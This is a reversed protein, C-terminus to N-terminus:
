TFAPLKLSRTYVAHCLDSRHTDSKTFLAFVWRCQVLRGVFFDNFASFCICSMSVKMDMVKRLMYRREGHPANETCAALAMIILCDLVAQADAESRIKDGYQQTVLSANLEESGTKKVGHTLELVYSAGESDGESLLAGQLSFLVQFLTQLITVSGIKSSDGSSFLCTFLAGLVRMRFERQDQIMRAVKCCWLCRGLFDQPGSEHNSVAGPFLYLRAQRM